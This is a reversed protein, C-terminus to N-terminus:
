HSEEKNLIPIDWLALNLTAILYPPLRFVFKTITELPKMGNNFIKHYKSFPWKPFGLVRVGLGCVGVLGVLGIIYTIMMFWVNNVLGVFVTKLISM